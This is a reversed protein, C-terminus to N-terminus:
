TPIPCRHRFLYRHFLQHCIYSTYPFPDMEYIALLGTQNYPLYASSKYKVKGTPKQTGLIKELKFKFQKLAIILDSFSRPVFNFFANQKLIQESRDINSYITRFLSRLVKAFEQFKLNKEILLVNKERLLDSCNQFCFVM